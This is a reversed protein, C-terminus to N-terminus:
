GQWNKPANAFSFFTVVLTMMDTQRDTPRGGDFLKAGVPCIEMFTSIKIKKLFRDLFHL